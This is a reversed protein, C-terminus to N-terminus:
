WADTDKTRDRRIILQRPKGIKEFKLYFVDTKGVEFDDRWKVDLLQEESTEGNEGM